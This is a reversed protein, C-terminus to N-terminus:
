DELPNSIMEVEITPIQMKNLFVLCCKVKKFIDSHILIRGEESIKFGDSDSTQRIFIFDDKYEFKVRDGANWGAERIMASPIGIAPRAVQVKCLTKNGIKIGSKIRDIKHAYKGLKQYYNGKIKGPIVNFDLSFNSVNYDDPHYLLVFIILSPFSLDCGTVKVSSKKWNKGNAKIFHEAYLNKIINNIIWLEDPKKDPIMKEICSSTFPSKSMVKHKVAFRVKSRLDM